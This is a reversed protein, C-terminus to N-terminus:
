DNSKSFLIAVILYIIGVSIAIEEAWYGTNRLMSALTYLLRSGAKVLFYALVALGVAQLVGKNM